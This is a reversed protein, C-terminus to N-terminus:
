QRVELSSAKQQIIQQLKALPFKGYSSNRDQAYNNPMHHVFASLPMMNQKPDLPIVMRSFSEIPSNIYTLAENALERAGVKLPDPKYHVPQFSYLEYMQSRSYLYLGQYHKQFAVFTGIKGIRVISPLILSSLNMDTVNWSNNLTCWEIRILAPLLGYPILSNNWYILYKIQSESVELDDELYMFYDYSELCAYFVERHVWTLLHPHTLNSNILTVIGVSKSKLTSLLKMSKIDNTTVVITVHAFSVKELAGLTKRLWKFRDKDYHYAITVILNPRM